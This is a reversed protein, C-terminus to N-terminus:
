KKTTPSRDQLRIHEFVESFPWEQAPVEHVLKEKTEKKYKKEQKEKIDNLEQEKKDLVISDLWHTYTVKIAHHSVTMQLFIDLLLKLLQYCEPNEACCTLLEEDISLLNCTRFVKRVADLDKLSIAYTLSLAYVAYMFFFYKRAQAKPRNYRDDYEM